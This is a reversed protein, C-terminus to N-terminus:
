ISSSIFIPLNVEHDKSPNRLEKMPNSADPFQLIQFQFTTKTVPLYGNYQFNISPEGGPNAWLIRENKQKNNNTTLLESPTKAFPPKTPQRPATLPSNARSDPPSDAPSNHPGDPPSKPLHNPGYIM